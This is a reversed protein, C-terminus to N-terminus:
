TGFHPGESPAPPHRNRGRQLIQGLELIPSQTFRGECADQFLRQFAERDSTRGARRDVYGGYISWRQQDCFTRLQLLQDEPDQGKDKTSIRAYLATEMSYKENYVVIISIDM